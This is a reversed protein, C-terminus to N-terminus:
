FPLTIEKEALLSNMHAAADLSLAASQCSPAHFAASTCLWASEGLIDLQRPLGHPAAVVASARLRMPQGDKKSGLGM